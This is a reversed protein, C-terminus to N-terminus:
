VYKQRLNRKMLSLANPLYTVNEDKVEDIVGDKLQKRIIEDYRGLLSPAKELKRRLSKLRM